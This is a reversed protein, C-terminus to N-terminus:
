RLSSMSLILKGDITLYGCFFPSTIADEGSTVSILLVRPLMFLTLLLTLRRYCKELPPTNGM